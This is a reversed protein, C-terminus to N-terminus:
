SFSYPLLTSFRRACAEGAPEGGEYGRWDECGWDSGVWGSRGRWDLAFSPPSISPAAVGDGCM